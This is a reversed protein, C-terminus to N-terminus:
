IYVRISRNDNSCRVEKGEVEEDNAFLLTQEIKCSSFSCRVICCGEGEADRVGGRGEMRGCHIMDGLRGLGM